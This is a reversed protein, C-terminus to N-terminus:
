KIKDEKVGIEKKKRERRNKTKNLKIKKNQYKM